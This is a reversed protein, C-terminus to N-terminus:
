ENKTLQIISLYETYSVKIRDKGKLFFYLENKRDIYGRQSFVDYMQWDKTEDKAKLFAEKSPFAYKSKTSM